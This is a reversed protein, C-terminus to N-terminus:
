KNSAAVAIQTRVTTMKAIPSFTDLYDLGPQQTYGKAVLRAKCREVTGDAKHKLKYVWKCGVIKKSAPLDTLEWTNNEQLAHLEAQM